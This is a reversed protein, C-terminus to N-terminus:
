EMAIRLAITLEDTDPVHPWRTILRPRADGTRGNLAVIDAPGATYARAAVAYPQGDRQWALTMATGADFRQIGTEIKVPWGSQVRETAERLVRERPTLARVDITGPRVGGLFGREMGAPIDTLRALRAKITDNTYLLYGLAVMGFQIAVILATLLPVGSGYMQRWDGNMGSALDLLPYVIFANAGSIIAFQVLLENIAARFPRPNFFVIALAGLSLILNVITGAAAVVFLEMDTFGFPIFSVYGAFVYYGFDVVEGGFGWVAAAHGLEHLAVSIPVLVFFAAEDVMQRDQLTFRRDWVRGWNAIMRSVSRIGIVVYILSILAFPGLGM